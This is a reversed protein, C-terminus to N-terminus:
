CGPITDFGQEHFHKDFCFVARMSNERMIQFSVCDVVSLKKRTAALVAEVGAHHQQRAVWDIRLLPVIDEHFVRLAAIGLRRQLLASTEVLVYNSTSLNVSEQLLRAWSERASAHNTDDQDLVAYLASTDVFVTM